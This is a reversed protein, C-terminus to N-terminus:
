VLSTTLPLSAFYRPPVGHGKGQAKTLGRNRPLCRRRKNMIVLIVTTPPLPLQRSKHEKGKVIERLSPHVRHEIVKRGDKLMMGLLKRREEM